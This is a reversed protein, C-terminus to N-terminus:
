AVGEVRKQKLKEYKTEHKQETAEFQSGGVETEQTVPIIPMHQWARTLFVKKDSKCKSVYTYMIQAVKEGGRGRV